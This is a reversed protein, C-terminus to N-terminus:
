ERPRWTLSGLATYEVCGKPLDGNGGAVVVTSDTLRQVDGVSWGSGIHITAVPQAHETPAPQSATDSSSACTKVRKQEREPSESGESEDQDEEDEDFFFFGREEESDKEDYSWGDVFGDVASWVDWLYLSSTGGGGVISGGCRTLYLNTRMFGQNAVKVEEPFALRAIPLHKDTCYGTISYSLGDAVWVRGGVRSSASGSADALM